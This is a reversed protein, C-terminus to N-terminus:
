SVVVIDLVELHIAYYESGRRNNCGMCAIVLNSETDPGGFARPVVHEFTARELTNGGDTMRCGCYCCRWNQAECLRYLTERTRVSSQGYCMRRHLLWAAEIELERQTM